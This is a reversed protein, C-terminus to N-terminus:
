MSETHGQYIETSLLYLISSSHSLQLCWLTQTEPKWTDPYDLAM